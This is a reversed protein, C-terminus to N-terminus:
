HTIYSGFIWQSEDCIRTSLSYDYTHSTVLLNTKHRKPINPWLLSSTAPIPCIQQLCLKTIQIDECFPPPVLPSTMHWASLLHSTSVLTQFPFRFLSSPSSPMFQLFISFHIQFETPSHPNSADCMNAVTPLRKRISYHVLPYQLLHPIEQTLLQQTRM